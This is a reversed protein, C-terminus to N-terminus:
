DHGTGRDDSSVSRMEGFDSARLDAVNPGSAGADDAALGDKGQGAKHEGDYGVAEEVEVSLASAALDARDFAAAAILEVGAQSWNVAVPARPNGLPELTPSEQTIPEIGLVEDRFTQIIGELLHLTHGLYASRFQQTRPNWRWEDGSQGPSQARSNEYLGHTLATISEALQTTVQLEMWMDRLVVVGEIVLDVPNRIYCHWAHYGTDSHMPYSHFELERSDCFRALGEAVFKPGDLYKCVLRARVLDNMKTHSYLTAYEVFGHRPAAPYSRNQLCNIRYIKTLMSAYPKVLLQLDSPKVPYYLLEPRGGAYQGALEVLFKTLEGMLGGLQLRSQAGVLNFEYTRKGSELPEPFGLKVGQEAFYQTESPRADSSRPQAASGARGVATM